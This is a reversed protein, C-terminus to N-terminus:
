KQKCFDLDKLLVPTVFVCSNEVFFCCTRVSPVQGCVFLYYVFLFLVRDFSPNCLLLLLTRCVFFFFVPSLPSMTRACATLATPRRLFVEAHVSPPLFAGAIDRVLRSARSCFPVPFCSAACFRSLVSLFAFPWCLPPKRLM